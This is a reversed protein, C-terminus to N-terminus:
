LGGNRKYLKHKVMKVAEMALDNKLAFLVAAYIAASASVCAALRIYINSIGRFLLCIIVIGVCGVIPSIFVQALKEVRIRKDVKLLLLIFILFGNLASTAAAANAQFLPIFIANLIVNCAATILCVVMYYKEKGMPLLVANGLFSGGVLSFLFSISMFRLVNGAPAYELGAFVTVADTAVMILGVVCPLGFTINFNLLKRLLKNANGFDNNAFLASLRPILVLIISQVLQSILRSIKHATSYLGVEYDGCILGLMTTDANAFITTSLVMAFFAFVPGMHHKLKMNLTFCVKCYRRRYWINIIGAGSSSVVSIVAYKIYDEQDKVFLVMLVISVLQLAVTRVTIFRFDEMASNLWDASLTGFLITTSQIIILTRYQDFRRFCLLTVFLLIYAIITTCISISYLESAVASLKANDKKVKACERVAYTSMGLTAIMSFYSIVSLGFNVKGVNDPLLVRSIYPFTILPFIITSVTKLANYVANTRLNSKAM